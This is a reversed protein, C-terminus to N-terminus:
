KSKSIAPLLNHNVIVYGFQGNQNRGFCIKDYGKIGDFLTGIGPSNKKSRLFDGIKILPAFSYSLDKEPLIELYLNLNGQEVLRLAKRDLSIFRPIAPKKNVMNILKPIIVSILLATLFIAILPKSYNKPTMNPISDRNIFNFLSFFKSICFGIGLAGPVAMLPVSAALVRRGGDTYIFPLSIVIGIWSFLVLQGFPRKERHFIFYYVAFPLGLTSLISASGSGVPIFGFFINFGDFVIKHQQYYDLYGKLLGIIIQEPHQFFIDLSKKYVYKAFEGDSLGLYGFDNYAQGWGKGGQVLGYLTSSFNSLPLNEGTGYIKLILYNYGFGAMVAILCFLIFSGSIFHKERFIFGIGFFLIPLLFMPGARTILALTLIGIGIASSIKENQRIGRWLFIFAVTGLILGLSESLTTYIYHCGFGFLFTFFFIGACPGFDKSIEKSACYTVVGMIAGQALLAISFSYNTLFLITSFFVASLPRRQNWIDLKGTELLNVSGCFYNYADSWPLYGSVLGEGNNLHTTWSQIIPITFCIIALAMLFPQISNKFFQPGISEGSFKSRWGLLTLYFFVAAGVIVLVFREEPVMYLYARIESVKFVLIFYLGLTSCFSLSPLFLKYFLVRGPKPIYFPMEEVLWIGLWRKSFWKCANGSNILGSLPM